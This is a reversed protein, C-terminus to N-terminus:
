DGRPSAGRHVGTPNPNEDILNKKLVDDGDADPDPLLLEASTFERTTPCETVILKAEVFQQM